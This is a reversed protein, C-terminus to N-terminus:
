TGFGSSDMRGRPSVGLSSTGHGAMREGVPDREALGLVGVQFCVPYTSNESQAFDFPM